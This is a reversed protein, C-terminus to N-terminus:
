RAHGENQLWDRYVLIAGRRECFDVNDQMSRHVSLTRSPDLAAPASWSVSRGTNWPYRGYRHMAAFQRNTGYGAERVAFFRQPFGKGLTPRSTRKRTRPFHRLKMRSSGAPRASTRNKATADIGDAPMLKETAADNKPPWLM